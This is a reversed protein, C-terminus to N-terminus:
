RQVGGVPLEFRVGVQLLQHPLVPSFRRLFPTEVLLAYSVFPAVAGFQWGVGLSLGGIFRHLVPSAVRFGSAEKEFLPLSSINALYGVSVGADVFLGGVLTPRVGFATSVYPATTLGEHHFLGLTFAQYLTLRATQRYRWETGVEFGPNFNTFLRTVSPLSVSENQLAVRLPVAGSASQTLVLSLALTYM